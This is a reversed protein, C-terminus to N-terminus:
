ESNHSDTEEIMFELETNKNKFINLTQHLMEKLQEETISTQNYITQLLEYKNM